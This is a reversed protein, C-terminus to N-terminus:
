NTLPRIDTVIQFVGWLPTDWKLDEGTYVGVGNMQIIIYKKYVSFIYNSKKNKWIKIKKGNFLGM